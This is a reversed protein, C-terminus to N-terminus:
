RGLVRLRGHPCGAVPVARWPSLGGGPCVPCGVMPVAQWLSMRGRPCGAVPNSAPNLASHQAQILLPQPWQESDAEETHRTHSGVKASNVVGQAPPAGLAPGGDPVVPCACLSPLRCKRDTTRAELPTVSPSPTPRRVTQRRLPHLRACTWRTRRRVSKRTLRAEKALPPGNRLMVASLSGWCASLTPLQLPSGVSSALLGCGPDPPPSPFLAGRRATMGARPAGM